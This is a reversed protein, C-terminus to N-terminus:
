WDNGGGSYIRDYAWVNGIRSLWRRGIPLPVICGFCIGWVVCTSCREFSIINCPRVAGIRAVTACQGYPLSSGCLSLSADTQYLFIRLIAPMTWISWAWLAGYPPRTNFLRIGVWLSYSCYLLGSNLSSLIGWRLSPYRSLLIGTWEVERNNRTHTYARAM